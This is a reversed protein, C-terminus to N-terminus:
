TEGFLLSPWTVGCSGPARHGLARELGAYIRATEESDLSLAVDCDIWGEHGWEPPVWRGAGVLAGAPDRIEVRRSEAALIVTWRGATQPDSSEADVYATTNEDM